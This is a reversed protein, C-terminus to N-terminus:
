CFYQDQFVWRIKLRSSSTSSAPKDNGFNGTQLYQHCRTMITALTLSSFTGGKYAYWKYGGLRLFPACYCSLVQKLLIDCGQLFGPWENSESTMFQINCMHLGWTNPQWAQLLRPSTIAKHEYFSWGTYGGLTPDNHLLSCSSQLYLWTFKSCCRTDGLPRSLLIINLQSMIYVEIFIVDYSTVGMMPSSGVDVLNLAKHKVLQAIFGEIISSFRHIKFQQYSCNTAGLPRSMVIHHTPDEILHAFFHSQMLGWTDHHM